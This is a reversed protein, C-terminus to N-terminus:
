GVLVCGSRSFPSIRTSYTPNNTLPAFPEIPPNCGHPPAAHVRDRNTAKPRDGVLIIEDVYM